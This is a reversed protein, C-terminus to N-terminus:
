AAPGRAQALRRYLTARGMGLQRAAATVNGGAQVLAQAIAHDQADRLSPSAAAPPAAAPMALDGEFDDAALPAGPDALAIARRLAHALQRVNGPWPAARLRQRLATDLREPPQQLGALLTDLVADFDSRERLPLLALVHGAIRFYLDERFRGQAVADRLDRHTACVVRLSVPTPTTAGLRLVEHSDLVRLLAAQLTLPMDGIEDLFLTGGHAAEIKGVAGGRRAGTFAGDVHGFLEGALLEAPIAACNLAIFPGGGQPGAAHLARAAVDKGCGTEGTVLVPLEAHFARLARDFARDLRPDGFCLQAAPRAAPRTIPAPRAAPSLGDMRQARLQVGGRLRLPAGHHGARLQPLWTEFRSEFLDSFGRALAQGAPDLPLGILQRAARSAALLQGDEDLALWAQTAAGVAAEGVDIELRLYALLREFLRREIRQACREALWLASHQMGPMDHSVDLAGVVEGQPDFVPAACCHFIQTDAYFHEAGLVRVPQREQIALSMANTGISAESLDVGARFAQRLPASRAAIMGDVALAHGRVDTLLVAYGAPHVAGALATLEPQAVQLLARNREMLRQLATREVPAFDVAEHVSRGLGSCRQWSRLVAGDVLGEAPAGDDFFTRRAHWIAEPQYPPTPV